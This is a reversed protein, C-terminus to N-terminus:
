SEAAEPDLDAGNLATKINASWSLEFVRDRAQGLRPWRITNKYQGPQGMSQSIGNGYTQGADDSWRLTVQPMETTPPAAKNGVEFEADLYNYSIRKNENKIHPFSRIRPLEVGADTYNNPNYKYIVGTEFDGVLNLGFAPCHNNSRHRRLVGNTDIWAKEHWLQTAVDYVWTVGASPFTLQYFVHGNLQYTYGIADEVSPYEGIAVEIAHTSIRSAQYNAGKMVMNQGQQNQSLWFLDLDQKAISYPAICGHEIFVGPMIAYPFDSAGSNYWIETTLQGVLWIERHIVAASVLNDPYGNKSAFNLAQFTTSNPDSIYFIRTGPKNLVFRSDVCDVRTSGIFVPDSIALFADTDLDITYGAATGDVILVQLGNDSMSVPTTLPAVMGLSIWVGINTVRYVTPGVVTYCNGNTAKYLCRSGGILPPTAFVDLGATPYHTTPFPSDPPNIEPFLNVCRQASAIRSKAEYAGGILAQRAM